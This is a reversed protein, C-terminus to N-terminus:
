DAPEGMSEIMSGPLGIPAVVIRGLRSRAQPEDFGTKMAAFTVTTNATVCRLFPVGTDATLGSPCDLALVSSGSERLEAILDILTAPPGAPDRNLGTGFVADIVLRPPESGVLARAEQPEAEAGIEAIPIGLGRAVHAHTGVPGDLDHVTGALVVRVERDAALLHRAVAFGDGGNNGRGCAILVADGPASMEAAVSAAHIAANEMLVLPPLGLAEANADLERLDAASCVRRPLTGCRSWDVKSVDGSGTM